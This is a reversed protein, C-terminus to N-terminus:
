SNGDISRVVHSCAGSSFHMRWLIEYPSSVQFGSGPYLDYKAWDSQWLHIGGLEDLPLGLGAGTQCLVLDLESSSIPCYLDFDLLEAGSKPWFSSIKRFTRERPKPRPRKYEDRALKMGAAAFRSGPPLRVVYPLPGSSEPHNDAIGLTPANGVDKLMIYDNDLWLGGHKHLATLQFLNTFSEWSGDADPRFLHDPLITRADVHKAPYPLAGILKPLQYSYVYLDFGLSLVSEYALRALRCVEDAQFSFVANPGPIFEPSGYESSDGRGLQSGTKRTRCAVPNAINFVDLV